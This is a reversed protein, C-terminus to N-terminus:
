VKWMFSMTEKGNSAPIWGGVLLRQAIFEVLKVLFACLSPAHHHDAQVVADGAVGAPNAGEVAEKGVRLALLADPERPLVLDGVPREIVAGVRGDDFTARRVYGAQGSRCGSLFIRM